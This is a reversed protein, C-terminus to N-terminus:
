NQPQYVQALKEQTETYVEWRRAAQEEADNKTFREAMARMEPAVNVLEAETLAALDSRTRELREASVQQVANRSGSLLVQLTRCLGHARLTTYYAAREEQTRRFDVPPRSGCPSSENITEEWVTEGWGPWERLIEQQTELEAEYREVEARYVVAMELAGAEMDDTLGNLARRLESQCATACLVVMVVGIVALGTNRESTM